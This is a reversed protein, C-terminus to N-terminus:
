KGYTDGRYDNINDYIFLPFGFFFLFIVPIIEVKKNKEQEMKILKYTILVDFFLYILGFLMLIFSM